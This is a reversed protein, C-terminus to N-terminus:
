STANFCAFRASSVELKSDSSSVCFLFLDASAAADYLSLKDSHPSQLHNEQKYQLTKILWQYVNVRM